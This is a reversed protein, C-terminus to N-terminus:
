GIEHGQEPSADRSLSAAAGPRRSLKWEDPDPHFVRRAELATNLRLDSIRLAGDNNKGPQPVNHGRLPDGTLGLSAWVKFFMSIGSGM